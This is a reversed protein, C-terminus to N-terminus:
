ATTRDIFVQPHFGSGSMRKQHLDASSQHLLAKQEDLAAFAGGKEGSEETAKAVHGQKCVRKKTM